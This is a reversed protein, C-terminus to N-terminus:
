AGGLGGIFNGLDGLSGGIGKSSAVGSGSSTGASSGSGSTITQIFSRAADALGGIGLSGITGAAQPIQNILGMITNTPAAGIAENTSSEVGSLATAAFPSRAAGTQSLNAKAQNYSQAGAARQASVANDVLPITGKTYNGQLASNLQQIWPGIVDQAEGAFSSGFLGLWDSYPSKSTSTGTNSFTSNSKGSQSQSGSSKGGSM